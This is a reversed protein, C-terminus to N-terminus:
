KNIKNIDIVKKQMSYNFAEKRVFEQADRQYKKESKCSIKGGHVKVMFIVYNNM